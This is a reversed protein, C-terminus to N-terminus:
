HNFLELFWLLFSLPIDYIVGDIWWCGLCGYVWSFGFFLCIDMFEIGGLVRGRRGMGGMGEMGM